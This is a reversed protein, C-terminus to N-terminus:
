ATPDKRSLIECIANQANQCPDHTGDLSLICEEEGPQQFHAAQDALL